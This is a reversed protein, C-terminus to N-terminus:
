RAVTRLRPAGDGASGAVITFAAASAPAYLHLGDLGTAAVPASSRDAPARWLTTKGDPNAIWEIMGNATSPRVPESTRLVVDAITQDEVAPGTIRGVRLAYGELKPEPHVLSWELYALLSGNVLMPFAQKREAARKTATKTARDFVVIDALDGAGDYKGDPDESFDTAVVYEPSVDAFRQEAPGAFVSQSAGTTADYLWVDADTATVWATFAVSTASVRPESASAFAGDITKTDGSARVRVRIVSRGADTGEWAIVDSSAAPRRPAEDAPALTEEAGTALDRIVLAGSTSVYVLSCGTVAYPPYGNLDNSAVAVDAAPADCSTAGTGGSSSSGSPTPTGSASTGDDSVEGGCAGLMAVILCAARKM